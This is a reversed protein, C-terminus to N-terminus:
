QLDQELMGQEVIMGSDLHRVFFQLMNEAQWETVRCCGMLTQMEQQVEAVTPLETLNM